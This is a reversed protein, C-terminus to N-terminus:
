WLSGRPLATGVGRHQWGDTVVFAVEAVRPSGARVDFGVVAVIEGDVDLAVLAQRQHQDANALRTV